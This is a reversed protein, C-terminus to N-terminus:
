LQPLFVKLPENENAKDLFGLNFYPFLQETFKDNFTYLHSMDDANYFSVLGRKYDLFVGIKNPRIDLSLITPPSTGAMYQVGYSLSLTWFGNAPFAKVVGKRSVSEHAVGLTWVSVSHVEVEWYHKGNNFGQCGLLSLAANFREPNDPVSNPHSEYRVCNLLPSLRLWPNATKPDLTIPFPTINIIAKMTKWVKYHLPGAFRGECVGVSVNGPKEFKLQPRNLINKINKLLTDPEQARLREEIDRLARKLRSIEMGIVAKREDLQILARREETKLKVQMMKEEQYLFQHLESFQAEIREKMDATQEKM